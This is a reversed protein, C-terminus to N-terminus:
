LAAARQLDSSFRLLRAVRDAGNAAPSMRITLDDAVLNGTFGHDAECTPDGCTAPEIDVRRMAGWGVSLWSEEVPSEVPRFSEPDAVVRTLVVTNINRIAISETSSSAYTRNDGGEVAHDDTHGVLLRTSTLALVTLHRHFEDRDFTPEYHVLFSLLPEDGAALLVGDEVLDPFFGCSEIDARLEQRVSISAQTMGSMRARVAAFRTIRDVAGRVSLGVLWTGDAVVGPLRLDGDHAFRVCEGLM